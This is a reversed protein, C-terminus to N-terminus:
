VYIGNLRKEERSVVPGFSTTNDLIKNNCAGINFHWSILFRIQLVSLTLCKIELPSDELIQMWGSLYPYLMHM